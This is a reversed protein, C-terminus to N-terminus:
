REVLLRKADRALRAVTEVEMGDYYGRIRGRRDVLVLKTSHLIPEADDEAADEVALRFGQRALAHIAAKEGTLFWWRQRDAGHREAYARLVAPTDFEPDVSFSVLRVDQRAPLMKLLQGIRHMMIPCSGACRTFIFSAVWVRGELDARSVNREGAEVLSFEPVMALAPLSETGHRGRVAVWAVSGAVLVFVAAVGVNLVTSLKM